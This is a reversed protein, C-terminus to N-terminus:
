RKGFWRLFFLLSLLALFGLIIYILLWTTKLSPPKPLLFGYKSKKDLPKIAADIRTIKQELADLRDAQRRYFAVYSESLTEPGKEGAVRELDGAVEGLLKRVTEYQPQNAMRRLVDQVRTQLGAVRPANVNWKDRVKVEFTKTENPALEVAKRYVYTNGTGTRTGIELEGADMVDQVKVESPLDMEVPVPRTEKPSTNHVNIRIAATRYQGGPPPV